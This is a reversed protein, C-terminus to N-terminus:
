TNSNPQVSLNAKAVRPRADDAVLCAMSSKAIAAVMGRRLRLYLRDSSPPINIEADPSCLLVEGIRDDDEFLALPLAIVLEDIATLTVDKSWPFLQGPELTVLAESAANM